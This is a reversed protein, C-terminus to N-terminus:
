AKSRRKWWHRLGILLMAGVLVAGVAFASRCASEPALGAAGAVKVACNREGSGFAVWLEVVLMLGVIALALIEALHPRNFASALQASGAVVFASAALYAVWAPANLGEPYLTIMGATFLGVAVIAAGFLKPHSIAANM